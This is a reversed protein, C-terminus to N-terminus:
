KTQALYDDRCKESCFYHTTGGVSKHVADSRPVFTGCQPDRVMDEGDVTKEPPVQRTPGQLSRLLAGLLNYGVYFLLAFILLKIM